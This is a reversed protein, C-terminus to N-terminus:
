TMILGQNALFADVCSEIERRCEAPLEEFRLARRPRRSFLDALLNIPSLLWTLLGKGTLYEEVLLWTIRRHRSVDLVGCALMFATPIPAFYIAPALLLAFVAVHRVHKRNARTLPNM